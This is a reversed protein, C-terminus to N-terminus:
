EMARRRRKAEEGGVCVSMISAGEVGASCLRDTM